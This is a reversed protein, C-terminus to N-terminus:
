VGLHATGDLIGDRMRCLRLRRAAVAQDHTAIIVATNLERAIREFYDMVNEANVSDLQGTPEDALLLDPGNVLARAIAARQREGGSLRSAVHNIRHGMGVRELAAEILGRRESRPVDAYILPFELNEYVTSSEVMDSSQFVFGITKRRVRAQEARDLSLMDRGLLEYSGRTPATLLGLIFLLTSKGVGSPGVIAVTEGRDVSLDVHRLAHITGGPGDFEKAVGLVKLIM